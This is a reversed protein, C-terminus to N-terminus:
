QRCKRQHSPGTKGATLVGALRLLKGLLRYCKQLGGAMGRSDEHVVVPSAIGYPIKIRFVSHEHIASGVEVAVVQQALELSGYPESGAPSVNQIAPLHLGYKHWRGARQRLGKKQVRIPMGCELVGLRDDEEPAMGRNFISTKTSVRYWRPLFTFFQKGSGHPIQSVLACM